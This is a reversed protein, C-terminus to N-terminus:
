FIKMMNNLHYFIINDGEHFLSFTQGVKVWWEFGVRFAGMLRVAVRVWARPSLNSVEDVLATGDM